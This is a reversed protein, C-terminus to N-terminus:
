RETGLWILFMGNRIKKLLSRSVSVNSIFVDLVFEAFVLVDENLSKFSSKNLFGLVFIGIPLKNSVLEISLM